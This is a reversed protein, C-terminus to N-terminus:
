DAERYSLVKWQGDLELLSGIFGLEIEEGSEATATVLTGRHLAFTAYREVGTPFRTAIPTLARGGWASIARAANTHSRTNLMDWAFEQSVNYGKAPWEPWLLQNHERENVRLDDLTQLDSAEVAKLVRAVLEEASTTAHFLRRPGAPSAAPSAGARSAGPPQPREAGSGCALAAAALLGLPRSIRRRM